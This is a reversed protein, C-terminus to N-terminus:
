TVEGTIVVKRNYDKWDMSKFVAKHNVWRAFDKQIKLPEDGKINRFPQAFPDVNIEKCFVARKHASEIDKVLLYVFYQSPTCKYKRLLEVAKRIPEIMGLSDCALRVPKLWKVGSLLKAIEPTVLRADLGQNFDVKIPLETIKEIQKLGHECALVNNDLLIVEKRDIAIQEISRYPRIHGEKEPVFCDPCNRICGRTLFGIAQKFDPYLSYDPECDDIAQPLTAKLNFGTGGTIIGDRLYSKNTWTFISSAYVRDFCPHEVPSYWAVTDGQTKHWTSIKMLAYNPIKSDLNYLGIQM